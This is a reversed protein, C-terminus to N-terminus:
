IIGHKKLEQQYLQQFILEYEETGPILKRKYNELKEYVKARIEKDRNLFDVITKFVINKIKGDRVDYDILEKDWLERVIFLSLEDWREQFRTKFGEEKALREKIMRFLERRDISYFAFGEEEEKEELIQRAKEEIEREWEVDEMLIDEIEQQAKELTQPFTVLKSDLLALAIKRALFPVQHPKLVM